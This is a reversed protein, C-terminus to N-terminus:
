PTAEWEWYPNSGVPRTSVRRSGEELRRRFPREVPAFHGLGHQVGFDYGVALYAFLVPQEVRTSPQDWYVGLNCAARVRDGSQLWHWFRVSPATRM